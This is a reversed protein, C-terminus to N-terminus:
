HCRHFRGPYASRGAVLASWFSELVNFFRALEYACAELHGPSDLAARQGAKQAAERAVECDAALERLLITLGASDM